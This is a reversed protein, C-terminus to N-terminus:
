PDETAFYLGDFEEDDGNGSISGLMSGFTNGNEDFAGDLTGSISLHLSPESDGPDDDFSAGGSFSGGYLGGSTNLANGSFSGTLSAGPNEPDDIEEINFIYNVENAGDISIDASGAFLADSEVLGAGFTGSYSTAGTPQTATGGENAAQIDDVLPGLNFPLSSRTAGAPLDLILIGDSVIDESDGGGGGGCAALALVCVGALPKMMMRM